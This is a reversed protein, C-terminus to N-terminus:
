SELNAPDWTRMSQLRDNHKEHILSLIFENYMERSLTRELYASWKMIESKLRIIGQAKEKVERLDFEVVADLVPDIMDFPNGSVAYRLQVKIEHRNVSYDGKLGKYVHIQRRRLPILRQRARHRTIRVVIGNVDQKKPM